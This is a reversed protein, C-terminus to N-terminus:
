EEYGAAEPAHKMTGKEEMGVPGGLGVREGHGASRHCHVCSVAEPGTGGVQVLEHVLDLHCEICRERLIRSNKGTISIPERFDQLTFARSHNFGNEAKALYKGPLDAPLHCDVCTAFAHHSSKQWSDFQPKMIHCNMCAEPNESFYSHGEGYYFTFGGIGLVIGIIAALLVRGM